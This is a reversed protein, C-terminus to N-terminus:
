GRQGGCLGARRTLRMARSLWTTLHADGSVVMDNFRAELHGGLEAPVTM